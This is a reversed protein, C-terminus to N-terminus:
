AGLTSTFEDPPSANVADKMVEAWHRELYDMDAAFSTQKGGLVAVYLSEEIEDPSVGEIGAFFKWITRLCEATLRLYKLADTPSAEKHSYRVEYWAHLFSRLQDRDINAAQLHPEFEDIFGALKQQHTRSPTIGRENLVASFANNIAQYGDAIVLRAVGASRCALYQSFSAVLRERANSNM